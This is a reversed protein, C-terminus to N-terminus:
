LVNQALSLVGLELFEQEGVIQVHEARSQEALRLKGLELSDRVLHCLAALRKGLLREALCIEVEIFLVVATGAGIVILDAILPGSDGVEIRREVDVLIGRADRGRDVNRVCDECLTLRCDLGILAEEGGAAAVIGDGQQLDGANVEHLLRGEVDGHGFELISQILQGREDVRLRECPAAAEQAAGYM